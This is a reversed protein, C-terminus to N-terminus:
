VIRKTPLTLHTYSVANAYVVLIVSAWGGVALGTEIVQRGISITRKAKNIIYGRMFTDSRWQTSTVQTIMIYTNAERRQRDRAYSVCKDVGAIVCTVVPMHETANTNNCKTLTGERVGARPTSDCATVSSVWKVCGSVIQSSLMVPCYSDKVLIDSSLAVVYTSLVYTTAKDLSM